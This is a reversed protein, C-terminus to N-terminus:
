VVKKGHLTGTRLFHVFEAQTCIKPSDDKIASGDINRYYLDFIVLGPHGTSHKTEPVVDSAETIQVWTTVNPHPWGEPSNYLTYGQKFKYNTGQTWVWYHKGFKIRETLHIDLARGFSDKVAFTWGPALINENFNVLLRISRQASSTQPKTNKSAAHMFSEEHIIKIGYGENIWEGVTAIDNQHNTHKWKPNTKGGIVLYDLYRAPKKLALGGRIDVMEHLYKIDGSKTKGAFYFRM